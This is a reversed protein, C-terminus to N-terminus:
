QRPQCQCRHHCLLYAVQRMMLPIYYYGTENNLNTANAFAAELYDKAQEYKQAAICIRTLNSVTNFAYGTLGSVSKKYELAKQYHWAASDLNHLGEYLNGLNNHVTGLSAKDQRSALNFFNIATCYHRKKISRDPSYMAMALNASGMLVTDQAKSAQELIGKAIRYARFNDGFSMYFQTSILAASLAKRKEGLKEYITQEKKAWDIAEKYRAGNFHFLAYQRCLRAEPVSGPLVCVEVQRLAAARLAWPTKPISDLLLDCYSHIESKQQTAFVQACSSVRFFLVFVCSLLALGKNM